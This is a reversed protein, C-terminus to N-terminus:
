HRTTNRLPGYQSWYQKMDEDIVCVTPDLAGEALKFVVGLQTTRNVHRLSLIGDLPVQVFKLLPGMHVEHPEVLDLALDQVQTPAVGLIWVPQPIFPSLAAKERFPLSLSKIPPSNLPHPIPHM